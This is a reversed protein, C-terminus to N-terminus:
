PLLHYDIVQLNIQILNSKFSFLNIKKKEKEANGASNYVYSIM